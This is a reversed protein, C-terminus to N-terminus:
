IVAVMKLDDVFFFLKDSKQRFIRYLIAGETETDDQRIKRVSIIAKM